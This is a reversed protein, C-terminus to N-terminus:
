AYYSAPSFFLSAVHVQNHYEIGMSMTNILIALLIARQFYRHDVVFKLRRRM